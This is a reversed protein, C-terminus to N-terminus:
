SGTCPVAENEASFYVNDGSANAPSGPTYDDDDSCATFLCCAVALLLYKNFLKM